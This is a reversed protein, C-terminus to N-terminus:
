EMSTKTYQSFLAASKKVSVLPDSLPEDIWLAVSLWEINDESACTLGDIPNDAVIALFRPYRTHFVWENQNDSGLGSCLMFEPLIDDVMAGLSVGQQMYKALRQVPLSAMEKGSEIARIKQSANKGQLGLLGAMQSVSARISHRLHKFELQSFM